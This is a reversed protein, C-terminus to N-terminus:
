EASAHLHLACGVRRTLYSKGSERTEASKGQTFGALGHLLGNLPRLASHDTEMVSYM